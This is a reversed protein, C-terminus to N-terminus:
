DLECYSSRSMRLGIWMVPGQGVGSSKALRKGTELALSFAIWAITFSNLAWSEGMSSADAAEIFGSFLGM